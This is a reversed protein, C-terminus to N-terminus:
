VDIEAVDGSDTRWINNTSAEFNSILQDVHHDHQERQSIGGPTRGVPILGFVARKLGIL